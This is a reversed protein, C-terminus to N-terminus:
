TIAAAAPEPEAAGRARLVTYAGLTSPFCGEVAKQQGLIWGPGIEPELQVQVVLHAPLLYQLLYILKPWATKGLEAPTGAEWGAWFRDLECVPGLDIVVTGGPADSEPVLALGEYRGIRDPSLPGIRVVLVKGIERVRSGLFAQGLVPSGPGDEGALRFRHAAPVTQMRRPGFSLRIEDGLFRHLIRCVYDHDGVV